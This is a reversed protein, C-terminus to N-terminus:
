VEKKEKSYRKILDYFANESMGYREWIERDTFKRSEWETIINKRYEEVIEPPFFRHIHEWRYVSITM